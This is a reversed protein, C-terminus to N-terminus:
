IFRIDSQNIPAHHLLDFGGEDGFTILAGGHGDDTQTFYPQLAKDVTLTDGWPSRM